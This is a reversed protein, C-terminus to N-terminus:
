PPIPITREHRLTHGRLLFLALPDILIPRLRGVTSALVRVLGHERSLRASDRVPSSTSGEMQRALDYTVFGRAIAGTMGSAILDAAEMWGLHELM